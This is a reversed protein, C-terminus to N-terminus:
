IAMSEIHLTGNISGNFFFFFSSALAVSQKEPEDISTGKNCIGAASEHFSRKARLYFADISGM